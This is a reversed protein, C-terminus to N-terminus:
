THTQSRVQSGQDTFVFPHSTPSSSSSHRSVFEESVRAEVMDQAKELGKFMNVDWQPQDSPPVTTPLPFFKDRFDATKMRVARHAMDEVAAARYQARVQHEAALSRPGTDTTGNQTRFSGVSVPSAQLNSASM